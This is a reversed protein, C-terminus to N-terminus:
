DSQYLSAIAARINNAQAILAITAQQRIQLDTLAALEKVDDIETILSNTAEKSNIITDTLDIHRDLDESFGSAKALYSAAKAIEADVLVFDGVTVDLNGPVVIDDATVFAVDFSGSVEDPDLEVEIMSGNAHIVTSDYRANAILSTLEAELVDHEAQISVKGAADAAAYQAELKKSKVLKEMIATGTEVAYDAYGKAEQLNQKVVEFGAVDTLLARSRFYGVFDDSANQIRKGSAIRALANAISQNNNRYIQSLKSFIPNPGGIM